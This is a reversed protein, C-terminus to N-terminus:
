DFLEKRFEFQLCPILIMETLTWTSRFTSFFSSTEIFRKLGRATQLIHSLYVASSYGFFNDSLDLHVIHHNRELVLSIKELVNGNLENHALDLFHLTTPLSIMFKEFTEAVSRDDVGKGIRTSALLFYVLSRNESFNDWDNTSVNEFSIVNGSLDLFILTSNTKLSSLVHPFADADDGAQSVITYSVYM